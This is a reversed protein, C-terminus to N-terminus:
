TPQVFSVILGNKFTISGNATTLKPITVTGNAAQQLQLQLGTLGKLANKGGIDLQPGLTSASYQSDAHGSSIADSGSTPAALGTVTKGQVDVGSPMLTPGSVGSHENVRQIVQQLMVNLRGLSPDEIDAKTLQFNQIPMPTNAPATPRITRAANAM